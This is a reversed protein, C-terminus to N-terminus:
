VDEEHFNCNQHLARFTDTIIFIVVIHWVQLKIYILMIKTTLTPTSIFYIYLIYFLTYM